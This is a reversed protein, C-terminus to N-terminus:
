PALLHRIIPTLFPTCRTPAHHWPTLAAALALCACYEEKLRLTSTLSNFIFVFIFYLVTQSGTTGILWWCGSLLRVCLGRPAEQKMSSSKREEPTTEIIRTIEELSIGEGSAGVNCIRCLSSYDGPSVRLGLMKIARVFESDDITGDGDEDWIQFLRYMDASKSKLAQRLRM